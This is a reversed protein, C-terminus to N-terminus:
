FHVIEFHQRHLRNHMRWYLLLLSHISDRQVIVISTCLRGRSANRIYYTAPINSAATSISSISAENQIRKVLCNYVCKANSPLLSNKLRNILLHSISMPRMACIARRVTNRHICYTSNETRSNNGHIMHYSPYEHKRMIWYRICYHFFINIIKTSSRCHIACYITPRRSPFDAITLCIFASEITHTTRQQREAGNIKHLSGSFASLNKCLFLYSIYLILLIQSSITVVPVGAWFCSIGCWM